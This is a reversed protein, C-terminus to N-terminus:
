KRSIMQCIANAFMVIIYHLGQFVTCKTGLIITGLLRMKHGYQFQQTCYQLSFLVQLYVQVLLIWHDVEAVNCTVIWPISSFANDRWIQGSINCRTIGPAKMNTKFALGRILAQNLPLTVNKQTVVKLPAPRFNDAFAHCWSNSLLSLSKVHKHDSWDILWAPAPYNYTLQQFHRNQIPPLLM